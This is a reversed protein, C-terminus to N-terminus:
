YTKKEEKKQLAILALDNEKEVPFHLSTQALSADKEGPIRFGSLM